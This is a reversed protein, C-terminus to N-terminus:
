APVRLWVRFGEGDPGAALQGGILEARERMGVLGYGGPKPAAACGGGTDRVELECWGAEDRLSVTVEAEPAHKRVNTLAEQATRLVTLRIEAPLRGPDGSVVVSCSRGTAASFESALVALQEALPAQHGRLAEVARKTEELGTRALDGAKIVRELVRAPDAGHELLMRTGELHVVQASLSHALVDHIERALRQREALVAETSRAAAVAETQQRTVALRHIVAALYLAWGLGVAIGWTAGSSLPTVFAAGVFGGVVLVLFGIAQALPLCFPAVWVVTFLPGLGSYEALMEALLGAVAAVCLLAPAARHRRLALACCTLAVAHLALMAVVGPWGHALDAYYASAVAASLFYAAVLGGVPYVWWRARSRAM